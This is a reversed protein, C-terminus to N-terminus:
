CGQKVQGETGASPGRWVEMRLYLCDCLPTDVGVFHGDQLSMDRAVVLHPGESVTKAM